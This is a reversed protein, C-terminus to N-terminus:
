LGSGEDENVRQSFDVAFSIAEINLQKTLFITIKLIFSIKLLLSVGFDMEM